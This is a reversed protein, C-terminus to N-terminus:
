VVSATRWAGITMCFIDFKTRLIRGLWRSCAAKESPQNYISFISAFCEVSIETWMRVVRHKMGSSLSRDSLAFWHEFLAGARYGVYLLHEWANYMPHPQSESVLTWVPSVDLATGSDSPGRCVNPHIGQERGLSLVTSSCRWEWTLM